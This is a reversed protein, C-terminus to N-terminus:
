PRKILRSKRKSKRSKKNIKRRSKRKKIKGGYQFLSNYYQKFLLACVFNHYLGFQIGSGTTFDTSRFSDGISIIPINDILHINNLNYGKVKFDFTGSEVEANNKVIQNTDIIPYKQNGTDCESYYFGYKSVLHYKHEAQLQMNYNKYKEQLNNTEGVIYSCKRTKPNPINWIPVNFPLRGGTADFISLTKETIYSKIDDLSNIDSNLINIGLESAKKSLRFEVINIPLVTNYELVDTDLLIDHPFSDFRTNYLNKPDMNLNIEPDIKITEFFNNLMTIKETISEDSGNFFIWNSIKVINQRTLKRKKESNNSRKEIIKIELEPIYLKLLIGMALGIPGAGIIIVNPIDKTQNNTDFDFTYESLKKSTINSNDIGNPFNYSAGGRTNSNFYKNRLNEDLIIQLPNKNENNILYTNLTKINNFLGNNIPEINNHIPEINSNIPATNSNTTKKGTVKSFLYKLKQM